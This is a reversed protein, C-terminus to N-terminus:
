KVMVKKTTGNSMKIINIGKKLKGVRNGAVDYIKTDKDGDLALDEIGSSSQIVIPKYKKTSQWYNKNGEQIAIIVVEGEGTCDLYQKKGIKVISCIEDGEITYTIELGSSATALLEVQDYQKIDAFEQDWTLTQYAKEVTLKGGIYNFYYNEAVGNEITIVYEGVDTTPTAETIAKPTSLLVNENENNVFGKYNLEFEPNEEGYARTYDKTSVTLQRKNITLAGKEYSIMYNKSTAGGIEIAYVGTGSKKTASTKIQPQTTLVSADDNGMFGTSSYTLEPNDEFYLRSVDNAKLTLSAPTITLQGSAIETAEYNAMVGGTGKIVYEGVDSKANAETSITPWTTWQPATEGNQLGDYYLEFTPNAEGYKRSYNNVGVKLPAKTITLTGTKKELTYNRAEASAVQIAYDGVSSSKTANTTIVPEITWEPVNENNKLGLYSLTFKPNDAGYKRTANNPKIQLQAKNVKLKGDVATINYNKAVADKVSIPYTGVPSKASATTEITPLKEWEPVSENNKLGNYTLTFEPNEDGYVKSKSDARVTLEAKEITMTGSNVTLQYNKADANGITIPYKGVKSASTATTSFEPKSNWAPQTENNKLGDYKADLTPVNSGYTMTKDNATMTLPAKNVTLTGDEYEFVYNKATAGSQKIAYTGVDSKATATTSYTGHSTIVSAAENNVFGTYTSSFQPNADGYERSADKVKATLTAPNITYTYPIKVDFSMDNNAFTIPMNITYTGADKELTTADCSRLEFGAPLNCTYTPTPAFGTYNFETSSWTVLNNRYYCNVNNLGTSINSGLYIVSQILNCGTFPWETSELPYASPLNGRDYIESSRYGWCNYPYISNGWPGYYIEQKPCIQWLTAPFVLYTLSSCNGFANSGIRSLSKGFDIWKLQSCNSFADDYIDVVGDLTLSVLSACGSFAFSRIDNTNITAKKLNTCSRFASASVLDTNIVVTELSSCLQFASPMISSLRHNM